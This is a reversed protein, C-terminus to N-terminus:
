LVTFNYLMCHGYVNLKLGCLFFGKIVCIQVVNGELHPFPSINVDCLQFSSIYVIDYGGGGVGLFGVFGCLAALFGIKTMLLSWYKVSAM